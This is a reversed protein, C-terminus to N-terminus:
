ICNCEFCWCYFVSIRYQDVAFWLIDVLCGQRVDSKESIYTKSEQLVALACFEEASFIYGLFWSNRKPFKGCHPFWASWHPNDDHVQEECVFWIGELICIKITWLIHCRLMATQTSSPVPCKVSNEWSFQSSLLCMTTIVKQLWSFQVTMRLVVWM